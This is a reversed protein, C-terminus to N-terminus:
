KQFEPPNPFDKVNEATIVAQPSVVWPPIPQGALIRLAVEVGLKGEDYPFEAVTARMENNAISRKAERIGDTGVIAVEKLKGAKKVAEVVGLAMGDNNAYIGVLDPHQRLINSTVNLATMRM